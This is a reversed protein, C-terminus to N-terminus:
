RALAAWLAKQIAESGSAAWMVQELRSGGPRSRLLELLRRSAETEVPTIANYATMPLASFFAGEPQGKSGAIPWGMYQTFRQMWAIPNHGLNSVLVGSTFDYLRRGEPTWHYVGASRALVAQTPTYTRLARPECRTILERAANSPQEHPHMPASMLCESGSRSV